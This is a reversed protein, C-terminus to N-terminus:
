LSKEPPNLQRHPPSAASSTKPLPLRCSSSTERIYLSHRTEPTRLTFEARALQQASDFVLCQGCDDRNVRTRSLHIRRVEGTTSETFKPKVSNESTRM